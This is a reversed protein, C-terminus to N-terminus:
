TALAVKVGHYVEYPTQYNLCKRPTLNCRDEITKLDVERPDLSKPLYKRLRGITNEVTGRQDPRGPDCFYVPCGMKESDRFELGNDNTLTKLRQGILSRTLATIIKPSQSQALAIKIYRSKREACVLIEQKSKTFRMCDREFDGIRSRDNIDKSRDKITLKEHSSIKRQIHRGAGRKYARKLLVRLDPRERKIFNYITTKSVNSIGEERLRGSIEDPTWGEFLFYQVLDGTQEIVKSRRRCLEKRAEARPQASTPHYSSLSNRRIERYITSKSFGLVKAIEPRSLGSRLFMFIHCRDEYAVRRYKGM